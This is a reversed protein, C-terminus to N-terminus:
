KKSAFECFCLALAANMESLEEFISFVRGRLFMPELDVSVAMIIHVVFLLFLIFQPYYLRIESFASVIKERYVYGLFSIVFVIIILGGYIWGSYSAIVDQKVKILNFFDHLADIKLNEVAPMHFQFIREGFSIEDLFGILGFGSAGALLITSKRKRILFFIGMCFAAAFLFASLNEVLNDEWTIYRIVSHDISYAAYTISIILADLALFQWIIKM